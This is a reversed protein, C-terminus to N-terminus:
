KDTKIFTVVEVGQELGSLIETLGGDGRLGTSIEVESLNIGDYIQVYKKGERYIVARSPIALVGERSDTSITLDATMGSKIKENDGNLSVKVKYYTVGDIVTAAPDIFTVTGIFKEDSSFADLTIEVEDSMKIKTIDSEPVDVEIQLSSIGIMSIVPTAASTQEGVDFNINTIVGDVPANIVTESFNSLYRNLTAQARKVNAEATTIEFNRPPAKKLNLKAETLNLSALKSDVNNHADILSTQYYLDRIRLDAADDQVAAIATNIATMQTNISVKFADIVTRTYVSNEVTVLMTGFTTALTDAVAELTGELGDLAFLIDDYEGTEQAVVLLDIVAEEYDLNATNYKSKASSLLSVDSVYLFGDANPDMIADYIVDLSYQAIFYKNNLTNLAEARLNELEQDRTSELNTLADQAAQYSARATAVEEETVDIDESSAGAILQELSSKAIDVAARADAVQSAVGGAALAALRQGVIVEDGVKVLLQQLTGPGNFNLDIDDASEISGTVEVTQKIDAITAAETVYNSDKKGSMGFFIVIAIIVIIIIAWFWKKKLFM